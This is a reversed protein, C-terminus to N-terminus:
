QGFWPGFMQLPMGLAKIFLLVCLACLGAALLLADRARFRTSAYAGVLVIAAVAAVLGAGRILVGFVVTASVILLLDRWVFRGVAEGPRVVGRLMAVAGVLALLAGLVSPFYAPGMKLASGMPYGQAVVVAFAGVAVFM